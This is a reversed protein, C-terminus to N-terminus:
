HHDHAHRRATSSVEGHENRVRLGTQEGTAVPLHNNDPVRPDRDGPQGNADADQAEARSELKGRRM